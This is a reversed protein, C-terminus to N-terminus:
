NFSIIFIPHNLNNLVFISVENGFKGFTFFIYSNNFPDHWTKVDSKSNKKSKLRCSNKHGYLKKDKRTPPFLASCALSLM